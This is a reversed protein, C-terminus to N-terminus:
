SSRAVPLPRQEAICENGREGTKKYQSRLQEKKRTQGVRYRYLWWALLLLAALVSIRYWWTQWWPTAIHIPLELMNKNWTGENNAARLQFTYNGPPVNTYNARRDETTEVWEDFGKLRYRFKTDQSMTYAKGSFSISFFNQQHNLSLERNDYLSSEIPRDLLRVQFIYPVPLEKNRRLESPNAMTISNRGGFIMEGSPLFSFHFFDPNKVGYNFSFLHFPQDPNEIRFLYRDNYSWVHGNSDTALHFSRASIGKEEINIKKIIGKEPFNVDANGLWIDNSNIWIRGQRDQLVASSRSVIELTKSTCSLFSGTKERRMFLLDM